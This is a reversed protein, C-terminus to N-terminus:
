TQRRRKARRSTLVDVGPGSTYLCSDRIPARQVNRTWSGNLESLASRGLRSSSRTKCANPSAGRLWGLGGGARRRGGTAWATRLRGLSIQGLGAYRQVMRDM